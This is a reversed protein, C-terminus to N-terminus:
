SIASYSMGSTPRRRRHEAGRVAADDIRGGYDARNVAFSTGLETLARRNVEAFRVQLMVQQSEQGSPLQLM